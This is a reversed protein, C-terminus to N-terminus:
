RSGGAALRGLREPQDALLLQGADLRAHADDVGGAAAQDVLLRQGVREGLAPDGAGPQVDERGLRGGGRRQEGEVVDHDGRVQARRRGLRLVLGAERHRAADLERQLALEHRVRDVHLGAAHDVLVDPRQQRQGLLEALDEGRHGAPDGGADGDLHVALDDGVVHGHELQGGGLAQERGDHVLLDGVDVRGCSAASRPTSTSSIAPSSAISWWLRTVTRPASGSPRLTLTAPVTVTVPM